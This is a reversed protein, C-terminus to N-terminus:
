WGLLAFIFCANGELTVEDGRKRTLDLYRRLGGEIPLTTKFFSKQVVSYQNNLLFSGIAAEYAEWALTEEQSDGKKLMGFDHVARLFSFYRAAEIAEGRFALFSGRYRSQKQMVVNKMLMMVFDNMVKGIKDPKDLTLEKWSKFKLEEQKLFDKMTLYQKYRNKTEKLEAVKKRIAELRKQWGQELKDKGAKLTEEDIQSYPYRSFGVLTWGYLNHLDNVKIGYTLKAVNIQALLGLVSRNVLEDGYVRRGWALASLIRGADDDNRWYSFRALKEKLFFKSEVIGDERVVTQLFNLIDKVLAQNGKSKHVEDLAAAFIVLLSNADTRVTPGSLKGIGTDDPKSVLVRYEKGLIKVRQVKSSVLKFAKEAAALYKKDGSVAHLRLLSLGAWCHRGWDYIESKRDHRPSYMDVFKGIPSQLKLLLEGARSAADRFRKQLKAASVKGEDEDAAQKDEAKGAATVMGLVVPLIAWMLRLLITHRQRAKIM